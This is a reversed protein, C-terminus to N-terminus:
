VEIIIQLIDGKIEPDNADFIDEMIRTKYRSEELVASVKERAQKSQIKSHNQAATCVSISQFVSFIRKFIKRCFQFFQSQLFM